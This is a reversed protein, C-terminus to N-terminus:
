QILHIFIIFKFVQIMDPLRIFESVIHLQAWGYYILQILRLVNLQSLMLVNFQFLM